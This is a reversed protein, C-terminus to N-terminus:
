AGVPLRLVDTQRWAKGSAVMVGASRRVQNEDEDAEEDEDVYECHDRCRSCLGMDEQGEARARAGCCDSVKM